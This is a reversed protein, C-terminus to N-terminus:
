VGQKRKRQCADFADRMAPNTILNGKYDFRSGHCPCDWTLENQNWELSCGLHPCKTSIFYYRDEMDRYVGLKQGDKMIIGAKGPKIDQLKDRVVSLHESLLSKTIIGADKLFVGTGSLMLRRPNFVRHYNNKRGTIMDSIIMAAAMSTTMGWKNFGTAVYMNPINVSYRGIYPVGDPTM